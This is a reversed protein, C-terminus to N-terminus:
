IEKQLYLTLIKFFITKIRTFEPSQLPREGPWFYFIVM